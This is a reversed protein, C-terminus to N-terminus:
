VAVTPIKQGSDKGFRNPFVLCQILHGTDMDSELIGNWQESIRNNKELM